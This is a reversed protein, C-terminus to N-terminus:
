LPQYTYLPGVISVFAMLIVVLLAVDCIWAVLVIPIWLRHTFMAAVALAMAPLALLRFATPRSVLMQVSAPQDAASGGIQDHVNIWLKQITLPGLVVL